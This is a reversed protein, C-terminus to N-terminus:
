LLARIEREFESKDAFGAHTACIRGDRAILFTTPIGVLPGFANQLDDHGLGVLVPYNMKMDAIYPTLEEPKDDVSVGVVQLGESAYRKQLDIFGPIEIKCPGCWTAWFDILLVKGQYSALAVDRGTADKLTFGLPAPKADAPCTLTETGAASVTRRMPAEESRWPMYEGLAVASLLSAGVGALVWRTLM